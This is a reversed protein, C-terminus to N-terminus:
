VLCHLMITCIGGSSKSDHGPDESDSSLDVVSWNNFQNSCVLNFLVDTFTYLKVSTNDRLHLDVSRCSYFEHVEQVTHLLFFISYCWCEILNLSCNLRVMTLRTMLILTM